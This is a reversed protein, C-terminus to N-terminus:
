PPGYRHSGEFPCRAAPTPTVGSVIGDDWTRGCHGCTALYRRADRGRASERAMYEDRRLVERAGNAATRCTPLSQPM